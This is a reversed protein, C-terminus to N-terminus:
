RYYIRIKRASTGQNSWSGGSYSTSIHDLKVSTTTFTVQASCMFRIDSGNVGTISGNRLTVNGMQPVYHIIYTAGGGSQVFQNQGTTWTADVIIEKYTINSTSRASTSNGSYLLTWSGESGDAYRCFIKVDTLNTNSTISTNSVTFQYQVQDRANGNKITISTPLLPFYTSCNNHLIIMDTYATTDLAYPTNSTLSITDLLKWSTDIPAPGTSIPQWRNTVFGM